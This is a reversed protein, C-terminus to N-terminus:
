NIIAGADPLSRAHKGAKNLSKKWNHIESVVQNHKDFAINTSSKTLSNM